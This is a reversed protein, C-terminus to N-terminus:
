AARLLYDVRDGYAEADSGGYSLLALVHEGPMVAPAELTAEHSAPYRLVTEALVEGDPGRLEVAVDASSPTEVFSRMALRLSASVTMGSANVAFAILTEARASGSSPPLWVTGESEFPLRPPAADSAAPSDPGPLTGVCGSTFLVLAVALIPLAPRM